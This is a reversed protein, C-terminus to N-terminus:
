EVVPTVPRAPYLLKQVFTKMTGVMWLGDEGLFTSPAVLVLVAASAVVVGLGAAVVVVAHLVKAQAGGALGILGTGATAQQADVM